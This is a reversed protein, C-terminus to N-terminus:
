HFRPVKAKGTSLDEFLQDYEESDLPFDVTRKKIASLVMANILEITLRASEGNVIPEGGDIIAEIFSKMLAEYGIPRRFVFPRGNISMYESVNSNRRIIQHLKRSIRQFKTGAGLDFRQWSIEPQDHSDPLNMVSKSLCDEYTGLIIQDNADHTLSKADEIIIVGKDGAIQRVSYGRAQNISSQFCALAGNAFLINACAIDEIEVKHLQNGIFASISTPRDGTLWCILDLDHSAQNMLIGGGCEKWTTRWPDRTFYSEPRFDIWSWLIRQIDGIKGADILNKMIQSSRHTRYQHGVCIKLNQAKALAVMADAESIRSAFPKEMFIHLGAELCAIGMAGHLYHPTVISVADVIDADLMRRYDTFGRVGLENSKKNVFEADADVLAILEAKQNRQVSAIHYKGMGKIGIVGYRIKKDPSIM